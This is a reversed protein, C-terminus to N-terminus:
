GPGPPATSRLAEPPHPTIGKGDGRFIGVAYLCILEALQELTTQQPAPDLTLRRYLRIAGLTRGYPGPKELAALGHPELDSRLTAARALEHPKLM